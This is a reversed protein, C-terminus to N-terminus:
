AYGVVLSTSTRSIDRPTGVRHPRTMPTTVRTTNRLRDLYYVRQEGRKKSDLGRSPPATEEREAEDILEPASGLRRGNVVGFSM